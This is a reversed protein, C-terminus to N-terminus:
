PANSIKAVLQQIDVAAAMTRYGASNPHLHDGSDYAALLQSPHEPDQLAKEFDVVADFDQSSRIFANVAQRKAEAGPKDHTSGTFPLLTGMVIRLGADHARSAIQRYGTIIEQASVDGQFANTPLGGGPRGGSYGIDNIGELFIV